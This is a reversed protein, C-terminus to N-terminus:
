LVVEEIDDDLDDVAIMAPKSSFTTTPQRSRRPLMTSKPGSNGNVDEDVLAAGGGFLTSSERHSAGNTKSSSASDDWPFGGPRKPQTQKGPSQDKSTLFFDDGEDKKTSSATSALHSGFLDSMLKAKREPEAKPSPKAADSDDFLSVPKKKKASGSTNRSASFSPQYGGIDDGDRAARTKKKDIYPMSVDDHSPKGQHMNEVSRTFAYDTRSGPSRSDGVTLSFPDKDAKKSPSSSSPAFPGHDGGGRRGSRATSDSPAFPDSSTPSQSGDRNADLQQLRRLLEDKRRREEALSPDKDLREREERARREQEKRERQEAERREREQKEREARERREQEEAAARERREQEADQERKERELRERVDAERREKERREREEMDRRFKDRQEDFRAQEKKEEQEEAKNRREKEQKNDRNDKEQRYREEQRRWFEADSDEKQLSNFKFTPGSNEEEKERDEDEWKQKPEPKPPPPPKEKETRKQEMTKRKEEYARAKSRPALDTLSESKKKLSQQRWPAPSEAPTGNYSAPKGGRHSYINKADLQREKERLVVELKNNTERLDDLQKQAEKSRAREIGLEHRHNKKLMELHRELEKIRSEKEEISLEANNLRRDLDSREALDKQDALAKYKKARTNVRELEDEADRLYRDTKEYKERTRRLQERLSRVENSHSQIMQPLESERDEFKVLAKEQKHQMRKYLKNEDVVIKMQKKMEELQNQLENMKLRNASLLRRTVVDVQTDSRAQSHRGQGRGRGGRGKGQNRGGKGRTRQKEPASKVPMPDEDSFDDSYHYSDETHASYRRRDTM